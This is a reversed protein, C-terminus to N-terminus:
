INSKVVFYDQYRKPPIIKRTPRRQSINNNSGDIEPVKKENPKIQDVDKFHKGKSNKKTTKRKSILKRIEKSKTVVDPTNEKMSHDYEDKSNDHNSSIVKKETDKIDVITKNSTFEEKSYLEWLNKDGQTLTISNNSCPANSSTMTKDYERKGHNDIIEEAESSESETISDMSNQNKSIISVCVTGNTTNSSTTFSSKVQFEDGITQNNIDMMYTGKDTMEQPLLLPIVVNDTNLGVKAEIPSILHSLTENKKLQLDKITGLQVKMWNDHDVLKDYQGGEELIMRYEYDNKIL